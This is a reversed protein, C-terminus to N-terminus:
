CGEQFFNVRVDWELWPLALTTRPVSQTDKKRNSLSPVDSSSLWDHLHLESRAHPDMHLFNYNPRLRSCNRSACDPLVLVFINTSVREVQPQHRLDVASSNFRKSKDLSWVAREGNSWRTIFVNSRGSVRERRPHWALLRQSPLIDSRM